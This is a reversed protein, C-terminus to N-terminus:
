DTELQNALATVILSPLLSNFSTVVCKKEIQSPLFVELSSSIGVLKATQGPIHNFIINNKPTPIYVENQETGLVRGLILLNLYEPVSKLHLFLDIFVFRGDCLLACYNIRKPSRNYSTTTFITGYSHCLRRYFTADTDEIAVAIKYGDTPSVKTTVLFYEIALREKEVLKRFIPKGILNFNTQVILSNKFAYEYSKPLCLMQRLLNSIISVPQEKIAAIAENRVSNLMMFHSAMQEVVSQTGNCCSQLQGNFWEPIFASTAWLCGWDLVSMEIHELLHFNYTVYESGYLLETEWVFNKFIIGAKRVDDIEVSEQLVIYLGYSLNCFHSYFPEPLIGELVSFYYLVFTRFESGKWQLVKLLSSPTRTIDYPPKANFLRKNIILLNEKSIFWPKKKSQPSIWLLLLYRVVGLCISHLYEPIFSKFMDFGDLKMLSTPGKIGHVIKGTKLVEKLDREHQIKDRLIFSFYNPKSEDSQVCYCRCHGRGRKVVIGPNLCWDCGFLGNFQTTNSLGNRAITDVTTIVPQISYIRGNVMFKERKVRNLDDIIPDLFVNRPPKKNGYWLAHLIVNSRRVKYPAENIIEMFPWFEFKSSEFIQVGDTNLQLTLINENLLNENQYKKYLYGTPVDGIKTSSTQQNCRTLNEGYHEVFFRLQPEIPLILTYCGDATDKSYVHGCPQFKTPFGDTGNSLPKLCVKCPFIRRLGEKLQNYKKLFLYPSKIDKEHALDPSAVLLVKLFDDLATQSLRHKLYFAASLLRIQRTRALM